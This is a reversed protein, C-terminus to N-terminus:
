HNQDEDIRPHRSSSPSLDEADFQTPEPSSSKLVLLFFRERNGKPGHVKSDAERLIRFDQNLQDRVEGLIRQRVIEDDIVGKFRDAVAKEAEFQPKIMAVIQGDPKILAAIPEIVKLISVFSVDVIAIDAPKDIIFDRIDTQEHVEVRPDNRLRWDLQGTGVDVSIVQGAGHQLVFDTFGGTSSGVDLVIKDKFDLQLEEAVSALKDGGRSVYPLRSSVEVVSDTTVSVGPKDRVSGGVTVQGAMILAQAKTRSDALGREVLLQDLRLKSKANLINVM